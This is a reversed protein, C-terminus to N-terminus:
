MVIVIIFIVVVPIINIAWAKSALFSALDKM